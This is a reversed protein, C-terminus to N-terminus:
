ASKRLNQEESQRVELKYPLTIRWDIGPTNFRKLTFALRTVDEGFGLHKLLAELGRPGEGQYGWLLGGLRCSGNTGKILVYEMNTAFTKFHSKVRYGRIEVLTGIKPLHKFADISKRTVGNRYQRFRYM